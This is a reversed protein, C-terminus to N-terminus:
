RSGAYGRPLRGGLWLAALAALPVVLGSAFAGFIEGYGYGLSRLYGVAMSGNASVAMMGFSYVAYASARHEDPLTGLLYTDIAPFLSHIVYGLVVTAATVALLGRAALLAYTCCVFGAVVSLLLPVNSFRDALRGTLFFAPVGAAFIVTLLVRGTQPPIGKAASLFSVYYNFMGNWAFGTLGMFAVGTLVIHWQSRAAGIFDRDGAGAAPLDARRATVATAVIAVVGVAGLALFSLQWDGVLLVATVFLPAVAAALQSATGHLGIVRGVNGPFLETVLPNAAIFYTGSSLGLLFAGVVLTPVSSALTMLWAAGVLLGGAALVMRHRPVRTLLYGVPIRPVASGIWAATAVPGLAAEPVGLAVSLPEILPAFISRAMNVLFVFLCLSVFLHRRSM